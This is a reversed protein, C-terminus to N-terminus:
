AEKIEPSRQDGPRHWGHELGILRGTVLGKVILVQNVFWVMVLLLLLGTSVVAFAPSDMIKGFEVAANTFVGGYGWILLALFQSTFGVSGAATATLFVGREYGAFSGRQVAQGLVQLAFAGQGFPGCMVMDQFVTGPDIFSRDFHQFLIVANTGAALGLGAGVELYAVLIAPVQLRPSLHGARCIVAGGTAATLAAIFPLLVTPSVHQTGPPQLKLQVTPIGLCAAIAFASNIWWLVYISVGATDGHQLVALQIISTFTIPICALCSTENLNNRLQRCVYRPYLSLRLLYIFLCIGLLVITYFWVIRSLTRQGDFRHDLRNIIVGIIGTGQPVLFWQSSFNWLALSLPSQPPQLLGIPDPM